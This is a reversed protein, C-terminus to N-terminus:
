AGERLRPDVVSKMVDALANGTFAFVASLMVVGMFLPMDNKLGAATLASGLGPYAFVQEALVSAGFLEGWSAFQLALAPLAANRLGHYKVIEWTTEGRAKAFLVYESNLIGAMKERTHLAVNATGSVSLTATPLVLHYIKDLTTVKDGPIGVPVSLGIPFWRLWVSFVALLMLGLWFVPVSAQMYSLWRITRDTRTGKRVAAWLGLCFGGLGSLLWSTGILAFSAAFREKIVDAVPARHLKSMGMDGSLINKFWTFYQELSPRGAGGRKGPAIGREAASFPEGGAHANLSGTPSDRMLLFALVSLGVLLSLGRFLKLLVFKLNM